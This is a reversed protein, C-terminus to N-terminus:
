PSPTSIAFQWNDIESQEPKLATGQLYFVSEIPLRCDFIPL